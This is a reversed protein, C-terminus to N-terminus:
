GGDHIFGETLLAVAKRGRLSSLSELAREMLGLSAKRLGQWRRHNAAADAKV